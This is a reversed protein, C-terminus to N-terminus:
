EESDYVQVRVWSGSNREVFALHVPHVQYADHAARDMFLVTLAIDFSRDTVARVPLNAPPAVFIRDVTPVASLKSVEARFHARDAASTGPKLWFFVSHILM